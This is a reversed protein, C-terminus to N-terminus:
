VVYKTRGSTTARLIPTSATLHTTMWVGAPAFYEKARCEDRCGEDGPCLNFALCPDTTMMSPIPRDPKIRRVEWETGVTWVVYPVALIGVFMIATNSKWDAPRSWWGRESKLTEPSPATSLGSLAM